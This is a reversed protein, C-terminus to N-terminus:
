FDGNRSSSRGKSVAGLVVRSDVLVLPRQTRIGERTIHRALSILSELGLLNIHKGAFSRCSFLTTRKLRLALPPAATCVEHMM